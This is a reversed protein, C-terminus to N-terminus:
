VVRGHYRIVQDLFDQHEEEDVHILEASSRAYDVDGKIYDYFWQDLHDEDALIEEILQKRSRFEDDFQVATSAYDEAIQIATWKYTYGFNTKVIYEKNM